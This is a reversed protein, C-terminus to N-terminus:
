EILKYHKKGLDLGFLKELKLSLRHKKQKSTLKYDPNAQFIGKEKPLWDQM